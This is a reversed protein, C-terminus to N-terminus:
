KAKSTILKMKTLIIDDIHCHEMRGLMPCSKKKIVDSCLDYVREGAIYIDNCSDRLRLDAKELNLGMDITARHCYEYIMNDVLQIFVRPVAGFKELEKLRTDYKELDKTASLPTVLYLEGIIKVILTGKIALLKDFQMYTKSSMKDYMERWEETFISNYLTDEEEFENGFDDGVEDFLDDTEDDPVNSGADEVDNKSKERKSKKKKSAGEKILKDVLEGLDEKGQLEIKETFISVLENNVMELYRIARRNLNAEKLDTDDSVIPPMIFRPTYLLEEQKDYMAYSVFPATILFDDAMKNQLFKQKTRLILERNTLLDRDFKNGM